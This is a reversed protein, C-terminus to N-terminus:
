RDIYRDIDKAIEIVRYTYIRANRKESHTYM